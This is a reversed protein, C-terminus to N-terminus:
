YKFVVGFSMTWYRLRIPGISVPPDLTDEDPGEIKRFYRLDFRLGVRDTVLGVAGGGINMGVLNLHMPLVNQADNRSAHLLGAGGSVFPRLGYRNWHRPITLVANGMLAYTHGSTVCTNIDCAFEDNYFFGPTRLFLGEVGFPGDGLLSVAGGFHWHRKDVADESDVLTTAGAFTFGVFPVFQWEAACPSPIALSLIAVLALIRLGTRM